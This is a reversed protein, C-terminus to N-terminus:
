DKQLSDLVYRPCPELVRIQSQLKTSQLPSVQLAGSCLGDVIILMLLGATLMSSWSLAQWFHNAWCSTLYPLIELVFGAMHIAFHGHCLKVIACLKAGVGGCGLHM